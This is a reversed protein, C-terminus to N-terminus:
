SCYGADDPMRFLDEKSAKKMAKFIEEASKGPQVDAEQVSVAYLESGIKQNPKTQQMEQIIKNKSM